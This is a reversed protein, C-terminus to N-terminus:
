QDLRKELTRVQAQLSDVRARLDAVEARLPEQDRGAVFEDVSKEVRALREEVRALAGELHAVREELRHLGALLDQYQRELVGFREDMRDLREEVRGLGAKLAEYETELKALKRLVSDHLGYMENRLRGESAEVVKQIDPLIIERHFQALVALTIPQDSMPSM